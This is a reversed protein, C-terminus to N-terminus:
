CGRRYASSTQSDDGSGLRMTTASVSGVLRNLFERPLLLRTVKGNVDTETETVRWRIESVDPVYGSAIRCVSRTRHGRATECVASPRSRADASRCWSRDTLHMVPSPCAPTPLAWKAFYDHRGRGLFCPRFSSLPTEVGSPLAATSRRCALADRLIRQRM